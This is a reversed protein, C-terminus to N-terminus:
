EINEIAIFIIVMILYAFGLGAFLFSLWRTFEQKKHFSEEDYKAIQKELKKLYKECGNLKKRLKRKLGEDHEQELENQLKEIKKELLPKHANKYEFIHQLSKVRIVAIASIAFPIIIIATAGNIGGIGDFFSPETPQTTAFSSITLLILVGTVVTADVQIVTGDEM